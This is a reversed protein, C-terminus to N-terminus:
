RTDFFVSAVKGPGSAVAPKLQAVVGSEVTENGM